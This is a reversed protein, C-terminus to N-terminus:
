LANGGMIKKIDSYKYRKKGGFYVPKLFGRKDHRWITSPDCELLEAVKQPSLYKEQSEDVLMQEIQQKTEAVCFRGFEILDASSITLNVNPYQKTLSILDTMEEAKLSKGRGSLHASSGTTQRHLNEVYDFPSCIIVTTM